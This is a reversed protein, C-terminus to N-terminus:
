QEVVELLSLEDPTQGVGVVTALEEDVDCRRGLADDVLQEWRHMRSLSVNHITGKGRSLLALEESDDGLKLVSGHLSTRNRERTARGTTSSAAGLAM